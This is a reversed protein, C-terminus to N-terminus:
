SVDRLFCDYEEGRWQVSPMAFIDLCVSEMFQEIIPTVREAV